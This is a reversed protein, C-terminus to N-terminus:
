RMIGGHRNEGLLKDNLFMHDSNNIINIYKILVYNCQYLLLFLAETCKTPFFEFGIVRILTGLINNGETAMCSGYIRKANM